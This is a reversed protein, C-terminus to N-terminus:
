LLPSQPRISNFQNPGRSARLRNVLWRAQKAISNVTASPTEQRFLRSRSPLPLTSSTASNAHVRSIHPRPKVIPPTPLCALQPRVLPRKLSVFCRCWCDSENAQNSECRNLPQVPTTTSPRRVREVRCPKILPSSHTPAFYVPCVRLVPFRSPAVPLPLALGSVSLRTLTFWPRLSPAHHFPQFPQFPPNLNSRRSQNITGFLGTTGSPQVGYHARLPSAIDRETQKQQTAGPWIRGVGTMLQIGPSVLCSLYCVFLTCLQRTPPCFFFGTSSKLKLTGEWTPQFPALSCWWHIPIHLGRIRSFRASGFDDILLSLTLTLKPPLSRPLTLNLMTENLVRYLVSCGGLVILVTM